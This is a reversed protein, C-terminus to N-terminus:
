SHTLDLRAEYVETKIGWLRLLTHFVYDQNLEQYEKPKMRQYAWEFGRGLWIISPVQTQTKPSLFYPLGGHMYMGNEGLSEGHDSVYWLAVDFHEQMKQLSQISAYLFYDTYLLSNDYSNELSELSCNQIEAGECTPKFRRFEKPYRASYNQGHSGMQHLVIFTNGRAKALIQNLDELMVGDLNGDNYFKVNEKPLRVCIDGICGGGNNGIYFTDIGLRQTIDLLNDRFKSLNREYSKQTYDTMMCPVSIATIVGCSSFNKFSILSHERATYPNTEKGYGNLSFNAGRASEGLVFVIIKPRISPVLKADLAVQTYSLDKQSQQKLYQISSRIPSIPNFVYYLNPNQKFIFTLDKGIFGFWLVLIMALYVFVALINHFIAKLFLLKKIQILILGFVPFGFAILVSFIFSLNLTENIERPNAEVISSILDPTVGIHLANISYFFSASIAFVLIIIIRIWAGRGLFTLLELAGGLLAFAFLGILALKLWLYPADLLAFYVLEFFYFNYFLILCLASLAILSHKSFNM